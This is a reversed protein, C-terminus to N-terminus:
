RRTARSMWITMWPVIHQAFHPMRCRRHPLNQHDSVVLRPSRCRARLPINRHDSFPYLRCRARVPLTQHDNFGIPTSPTSLELASPLSLPTGPVLGSPSAPQSLELAPAFASTAPSLEPTPQVTPKLTATGPGYDYYMTKQGVADKFITFVKMNLKTYPVESHSFFIRTHPNRYSATIKYIWCPRTDTRRSHIEPQHTVLPDPGTAAGL